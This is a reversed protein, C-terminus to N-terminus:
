INHYTIYKKLNNTYVHFFLIIFSSFLVLIIKLNKCIIIYIKALRIIIKQYSM